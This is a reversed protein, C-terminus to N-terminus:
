NKFFKEKKVPAHRIVKIKECNCKILLKNNLILNYFSVYLGSINNSSNISKLIFVWFKKLVVMKDSEYISNIKM